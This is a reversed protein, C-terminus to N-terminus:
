KIPRTGTPLRRPKDDTIEDGTWGYFFAIQQDIDAIKITLTTEKKTDKAAISTLDTAILYRPQYRGTLPDNELEEVKQILETGVPYTKFYVVDKQLIAGEAITKNLVGQRLQTIASSSRGYAALLEYLIDATYSSRNAIDAINLEVQQYTIRM